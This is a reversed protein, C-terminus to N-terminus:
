DALAAPDPCPRPLWEMATRAAIAVLVCHFASM